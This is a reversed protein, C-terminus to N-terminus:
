KLEKKLAICANQYIGEIEEGTITRNFSRFGALKFGHKKALKHIEEVKEISIKRGLSYNEYRGELALVMTESMCALAIGPPYGFNYGLDAHGPVEMLGGEIVLIDPRLTAVERCVDHPLAVDCIVSGSKPDEAKIIGNVSNTASIVIDSKIVSEHIDTSCTINANKIEKINNVIKEMRKLSKGVLIMEGVRDAMIHACISGISGTAGIVCATSNKVDIHMLKAAEIAGEVSMAITLSNGTTVPINLNKAITEGADGVISTYAGLGLIRAGLKEALKGTDIIKKYVRDRSFDAFQKPFLPCALFWGEAIAGADSNIGTIHSAEFPDMWEMIKEILEIRKNAAKPEIRIVDELDIPHIIFAFNNL